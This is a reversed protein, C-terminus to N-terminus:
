NSTKDDFIKVMGTKAQFQLVTNTGPIVTPEALTSEGDFEYYHASTLYLCVEKRDVWHKGEGDQGTQQMMFYRGNPKFLIASMKMMKSLDNPNAPDFPFQFKDAADANPNYGNSGDNGFVYNNSLRGNASGPPTDDFYVGEPLYKWDSVFEFYMKGTEETGNVLPGEDRNSRWQDMNNTVAIVAYSRLCKKINNLAKADTTFIGDRNPFIVLTWQRKSIAHQRALRLTTAVQQAARYTDKRGANGFVPMAIAFLVGIIAVVVLLEILTFGSRAHRPAQSTRCGAAGRKWAMGARSSAAGGLFANRPCDMRGRPKGLQRGFFGPLPNM